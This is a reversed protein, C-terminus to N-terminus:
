RGKTLWALVKPLVAQWVGTNHGGETLRLEDVKVPPRAAALFAQTPGATSPDRTSWVALVRVAPAKGHAVLWMPDNEHLRNVNGGFLEAASGGASNEPSFYGALVAASGYSQPDTFALKVSCFGGTSYGTIWWAAGPPLARTQSAVIRPVDKGLWTGVRPGGAVDSCETDRTGAVNMAPLVAIFAPVRRSSIEGNMITQLDLAHLWTSPTGPYGPLFVIVPYRRSAQSPDGYGPPTVITISARVGSSPGTVDERVIRESGTIRALGPLPQPEAANQAASGGDAGNAGSAGSGHHRADAPDSQVPGTQPSQGFLDGWSEYFVFERNLLVGALVLATLQCVVVLGVRQAIQLPESGRARDWLLVVAAPAAVVLLITLLLFPTGLLDV